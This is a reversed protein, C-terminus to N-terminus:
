LNIEKGNKVIRSPIGMAAYIAEAKDRMAQEEKDTVPETPLLVRKHSYGLFSVACKNAALASKSMSLLGQAEQLYANFYSLREADAAKGSEYIGLYIEPFLPALSPIMGDAGCLMSQAALKSSGQLLSFPTDKFHAACRRFDELNGGSDKYGAIHDMKAIEFVDEPTLSMGTYAPINYIMIDCRAAKSVAEFHRLFEGAGAHKAYFAPTVVALKGGLQEFRKLNEIVRGTGSDMVGCLVPVAGACEDLAIRIAREREQQTLAMAEGNTGAVFVGQLGARICHRLLARLAAEDVREHADIPTVIPPIVGFCKKQM